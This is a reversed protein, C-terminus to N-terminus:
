FRSGSSLWSRTSLRVANRASGNCYLGSRDPDAASRGPKTHFTSKHNLIPGGPELRPTGKTREPSSCAGRGASESDAWRMTLVPRAKTTRASLELSGAMSSHVELGSAQIARPARVSSSITNPMSLMTNMEMREFLSGSSCCGRARRTPSPSASPPRMRSSRDMLQIMVRVAGRKVTSVWANLPRSRM